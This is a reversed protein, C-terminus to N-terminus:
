RPRSPGVIDLDVRIARALGWHLTLRFQVVWGQPFIGESFPALVWSKLGVWQTFNSKGFLPNFHEWSIHLLTTPFGSNLSYSQSSSFTPTFHNIDKPAKIASPSLRIFSIILFCDMRRKYNEKTMALGWPLRLWKDMRAYHHSPPFYLLLAFPFPGTGCKGKQNCKHM